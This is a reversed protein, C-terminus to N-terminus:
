NPGELMTTALNHEEGFERFGQMLYGNRWVVHGLWRLRQINIPQVVDM